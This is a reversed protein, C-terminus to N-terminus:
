TKISCAAFYGIYERNQRFMRFMSQFRERNEKRLANRIIKLTGFLGEDHIMGRPSMLSMAGTKATVDTFVSGLLDRWGKESLPQANVNIIKNLNPLFEESVKDTIRLDHTLLCGGPKLVRHYEELFKKKTEHPFMSLMAENIVVDFHNDPFPLSLANGEVLTIKHRLQAKEINEEAKALAPPSIDLGTAQCQFRQVLAVLTTGMNCAVELVQSDPNFNGKEILWNTAERGGPRLRTKGLRALFEHGREKDNAM